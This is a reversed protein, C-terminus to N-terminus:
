FALSLSTKRPIVGAVQTLQRDLAERKSPRSEENSLQLGIFTPSLKSFPSIKGLLEQPQQSYLVRSHLLSHFVTITCQSIEHPLSLTLLYKSRISQLSWKCVLDFVKENIGMYQSVAVKIDSRLLSTKSECNSSLHKAERSLTRQKDSFYTTQRLFQYHM